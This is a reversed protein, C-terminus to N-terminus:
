LEKMSLQRASSAVIWTDHSFSQTEAIIHAKLRATEITNISPNPDTILAEDADAAICAVPLNLLKILERRRPSQSALILHTM